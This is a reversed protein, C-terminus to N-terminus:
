GRAGERAGLRSLLHSLTRTLRGERVRERGQTLERIQQRCCRSLVRCCEVASSLLGQALERGQALESKCGSAVWKKPNCHTALGSGARAGQALERGQAPERGQTL